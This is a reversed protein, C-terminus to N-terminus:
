LNDYRNGDKIVYEPIDLIEKRIDEINGIIGKILNYEVVHCKPCDMGTIPYIKLCAKCVKAPKCHDLVLCVLHSIHGFWSEVQPTSHNNIKISADAVRRIIGGDFGVMGIVKAGKRHAYDIAKTLNQSWKGAKDEGVGGHVSICILIDDKSLLNILQEVYLADFGSDNTISTLISPNDNLCHVKVGLKTLDCAFHSAVSASGGNGCM